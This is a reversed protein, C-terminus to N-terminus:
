YHHYDIILSYVCLFVYLPSLLLRVRINTVNFPCATRQGSHTFATTSSEGTRHESAAFIEPYIESHAFSHSNLVTSVLLAVREGATRSNNVSVNLRMHIVRQGVELVKEVRNKILTKRNTSVCLQGALIEQRESEHSFVLVELEYVYMRKDWATDSHVQVASLCLTVGVRQAHNKPRWDPNRLPSQALRTFASLHLPPVACMQLLETSLGTRSCLCACTTCRLYAPVAAM